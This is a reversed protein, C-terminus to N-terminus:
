RLCRCALQEFSSVPKRALVHDLGETRRMSLKAAAHTRGRMCRNTRSHLDGLTKAALAIRDADRQRESGLSDIFDNERVLTEV